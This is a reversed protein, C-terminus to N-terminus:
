QHIGQIVLIEGDQDAEINRGRFLTFDVGGFSTGKSFTVGPGLEVGGIRIRRIPTLSGAPNERFIESFNYRM